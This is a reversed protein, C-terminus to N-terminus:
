GESRRGGVGGGGGVRRFHRISPRLLARFYACFGFILHWVLLSSILETAYDYNTKKPFQRDKMLVTKIFKVMLPIGKVSLTRSTLTVQLPSMSTGTLLWSSLKLTLQLYFFIWTKRPWIKFSWTKSAGKGCDETKSYLGTFPFSQSAASIFDKFAGFDWRSRSKTGDILGDKRETMNTKTQPHRQTFFSVVLSRSIASCDRM